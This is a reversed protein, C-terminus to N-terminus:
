SIAYAHCDVMNGSLKGGSDRGGTRLGDDGENLDGNRVVDHNLLDLLCAASSMAAFHLVVENHVAGKLRSHSKVVESM